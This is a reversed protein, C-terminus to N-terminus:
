VQFGELSTVVEELNTIEKRHREILLDAEAPTVEIELDNYLFKKRVEELSFGLSQYEMILGVRRCEKPGFFRKTGYRRPSILGLSEWFRFTRTSKSFTKSMESITREKM